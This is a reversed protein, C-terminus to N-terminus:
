AYGVEKLENVWSMVDRLRWGRCRSSLQVQKPFNGAAIQAYISSKALGTIEMVEDIRIIKFSLVHEDSRWGIPRPLPMEKEGSKTSIEKWM